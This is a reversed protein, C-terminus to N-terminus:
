IPGEMKELYSPCNNYNGDCFRDFIDKDQSDDCTSLKLNQILYKRVQYDQSALPCIKNSENPRQEEVIMPLSAAMFGSGCMRNKGKM